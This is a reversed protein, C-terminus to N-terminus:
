GDSANPHTGFTLNESYGNNDLVTLLSSFGPGTLRCTIINDTEDLEVNNTVGLFDADLWIYYTELYDEDVILSDITINEGPQLAPITFGDIIEDYYGNGEGSKVVGTTAYSAAPGANSVQLTIEYNDADVETESVLCGELDMMGYYAGGNHFLSVNGANDVVYVIYQPNQGAAVFPAGDLTG